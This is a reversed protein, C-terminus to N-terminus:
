SQGPAVSPHQGRMDLGYRLRGVPLALLWLFRGMKSTVDAWQQGPGLGCHFSFRAYNIAIRLFRLPAHRLYDLDGNLMTLYALRNGPAHAGAWPGRMLSPTDQYYIRLPEDVFRIRFSRSIAGWVIGESVYTQRLDDPFPFAVLIDRRFCPLKDGVMRDRYYMERYDSEGTGGPFAKGVLTGDPYMSHSFLGSIRARDGAPIQYWHYNLRELASPVLADDSDLVVVLLGKAEIAARNHAIHKGQNDQYVYRLGFDTRGLWRGVVERTGDSSGDDIILWEFDRFTQAKLSEFVRPLTHARNFTPTFVTFTPTRRGGPADKSGCRSAESLSGANPEESDMKTLGHQDADQRM